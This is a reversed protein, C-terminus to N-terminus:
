AVIYFYANVLMIRTLDAIIKLSRSIRIKKNKKNKKYNFKSNLGFLDVKQYNFISDVGNLEFKENKKILNKIKKLKM